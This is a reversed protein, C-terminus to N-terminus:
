SERGTETILATYVNCSGHASASSFASLARFNGKEQLLIPVPVTKENDKLTRATPVKLDRQLHSKEQFVSITLKMNLGVVWGFVKLHWLLPIQSLLQFFICPCIDKGMKKLGILKSVHIHSKNTIVTCESHKKLLCFKKGYLLFFLSHSTRIQFSIIQM